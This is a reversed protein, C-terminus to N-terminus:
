PQLNRDLVADFEEITLQGVAYKKRAAAIETEAGSRGLMVMPGTGFSTVDVWEDDPHPRYSTVRSFNAPPVAHSKM